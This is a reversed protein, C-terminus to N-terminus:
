QGQGTLFFDLDSPGGRSHENEVLQELLSLFPDKEERSGTSEGNSRGGPTMAQQSQDYPFGNFAQNPNPIMQPMGFMPDFGEQQNSLAVNSFSYPPSFPIASLTPMNPTSFSPINNQDQPLLQQQQRQQRQKPMALHNPQRPQRLPDAPLTNPSILPNEMHGSVHSSKEVRKRSSSSAKRISPGEAANGNMNGNGNLVRPAYLDHGTYAEQAVDVTVDAFSIHAGDFFQGLTSYRDFFDELHFVPSYRM